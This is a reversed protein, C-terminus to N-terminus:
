RRRARKARQERTWQHYAERLVMTMVAGGLILATFLDDAEYVYWVMMWMLMVVAMLSLAMTGWDYVMRKLKM